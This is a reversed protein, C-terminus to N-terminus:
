GALSDIYVVPWSVMLGARNSVYRCSDGSAERPDQRFAAAWESRAFGSQQYAASLVLLTRDAIESGPGDRHRLQLWASFGLGSRLVYLRSRRVAVRDVRGM